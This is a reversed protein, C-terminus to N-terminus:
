RVNRIFSGCSHAGFVARTIADDPIPSDLVHWFGGGAASPVIRRASVVVQDHVWVADEQFRDPV